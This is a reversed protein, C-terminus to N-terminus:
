TLSMQYVVFEQRHTGDMSERALETIQLGAARALRMVAEIEGFSSQV